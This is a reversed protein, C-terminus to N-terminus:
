PRRRSCRSRASRAGARARSGRGCGRGARSPGCGARGRSRGRRPRRPPGARCAPSRARRRRRRSGGTRARSRGSPPTRGRPWSASSRSRWPSARRAVAEVAVDLPEHEGRRAREVVPQGRPHVVLGRRDLRAARVRRGLAVALLRQQREHALAQARDHQAVARDVAVARAHAEVEHDVREDLVRQQAALERQVAAAPHPPREDVHVVHGIRHDGHELRGGVEDAALDEVHQVRVVLDALERHEDGAGHLQEAARDRQALLRRRLQRAVVLARVGLEGAREPELRRARHDLRDGADERDISTSSM